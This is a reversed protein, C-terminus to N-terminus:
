AALAEAGQRARYSAAYVFPHNFADLAVSGDVEFEFVEVFRSDLVEVCVRNTHQIWSLTVEIGNSARHALERRIATTTAM